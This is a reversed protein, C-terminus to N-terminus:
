PTETTQKVFPQEESKTKSQAFAFSLQDLARPRRRLVQCVYKEVLERYAVRADLPFSEYPELTEDDMAEFALRTQEERELRDISCLGSTEEELARRWNELTRATHLTKESGVLSVDFVKLAGITTPTLGYHRKTARCRSCVVGGSSVDFFVRRGLNTVRELPLEEGCDVCHRVSPFEGMSNLLGAEFYALRAAVNQRFQFRELTADALTWLDPAPEYDVTSFDLLEAVYFGAYLGRLNRLTPRFRRRLKAETFLDLADSNKRIFSLRISALLDLSTEFPNKLRRAGKALGRVKGMERTFVNLILSSESYDVSKVVLADVKELSM